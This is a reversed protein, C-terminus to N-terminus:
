PGISNAIIWVACMAVVNSLLKGIHPDCRIYIYRVLMPHLLATEVLDASAQNKLHVSNM